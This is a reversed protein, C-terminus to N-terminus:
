RIVPTSRFMACANVLANWENSIRYKPKFVLVQAGRLPRSTAKTPQLRGHRLDSSFLGEVSAM